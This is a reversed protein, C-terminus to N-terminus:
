VVGFPKLPEISDLVFDFYYDFEQLKEAVTARVNPWDDRHFNREKPLNSLLAIPVEKAAFVAELLARSEPSEFRFGTKTVITYIDFFDRARARKTRGTPEYQEMQQCLARLKEVAIMAPPYVYIAFHDLEAAVKGLTYEYKSFDVTFVKQQNPGLVFAERRMRDRDSGISRHRSKEILKFTLQYGGWWPLAHPASPKPALRIDFVIFGASGFRAGLAHEIRSQIEELNEFDSAMSFDLDLSVRPSIGLVLNMANGGKLVLQDFLLDDGFLATITRKRIEELYM